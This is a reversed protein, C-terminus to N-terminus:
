VHARGIEIIEGNIKKAVAIAVDTKGVSTPGVIALTPKLKM